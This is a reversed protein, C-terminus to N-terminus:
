SISPLPRGEVVESGYTQRIDDMSYTGKGRSPVGPFYWMSKQKAWRYGSAKIQDKVARTDGSLWVWWGCIEITIGPLTIVKEIAERVLTDGASYYDYAGESKGPRDTRQAQKCAQDYAANLAQMTATDGGLDPHHQRCLKRYLDKIEQATACDRFFDPVSTTTM